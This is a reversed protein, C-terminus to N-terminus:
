TKERSVLLSAARGPVPRMPVRLGRQHYDEFIADEDYVMKGTGERGMRIKWGRATGHLGKILPGLDKMVKEAASATERSVGYREVAAAMEPDTIEDMRTAEGPQRCLGFFPCYRECWRYPKDKPLLEGAAVVERVWNLRTVAADAAERDFPREYVKWDDFTGDVPCVLLRVTVDASGFCPGSHYITPGYGDILGAAYGNVQVFKDELVDPDDWLRASARSPFKYDTVEATDWIVEDVHGTVGGYEVPVEFSARQDPPLSANRVAAMWEHLATGAIARWTDQDDSAWEGRIRFGLYSRCSAMDSWGAMHQQSRPRALDWGRAQEIVTSLYESV